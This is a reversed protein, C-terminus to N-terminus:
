GWRGCVGGRGAVAVECQGVKRGQVQWMYGTSKYVGCVCAVKVGVENEWAMGHRWACVGEMKMGGCGTKDRRGV